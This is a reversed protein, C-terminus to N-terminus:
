PQYEEYCTVVQDTARKTVAALEGVVDSFLRGFKKKIQSYKNTNVTASTAKANSSGSDRLTLSNSSSKRATEFANSTASNKMCRLNSRQRSRKIKMTGNGSAAIRTVTAMM